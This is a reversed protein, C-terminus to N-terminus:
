ESLDNEEDYSSDSEEEPEVLSSQLSTKLDDLLAVITRLHLLHGVSSKDSVESLRALSALSNYYPLFFDVDQSFLYM